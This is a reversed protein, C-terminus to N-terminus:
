CLAWYLCDAVPDSEERNGRYSLHSVLVEASVLAIVVGGLWASAAHSPTIILWRRKMGYHTSNVAKEARVGNYKIARKTASMHLEAWCCTTQPHSKIM